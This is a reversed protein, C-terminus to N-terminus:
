SSILLAPGHATEQCDITCGEIADGVEREFLLVKRGGHEVIQDGERERDLALGLKHRGTPILRFAVYGSSRVSLAAKLERRAVETITVMSQRREIRARIDRVHSRRNHQKRENTVKNDRLFLADEWREVVAKDKAPCV